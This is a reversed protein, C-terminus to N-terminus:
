PRAVITGLRDVYARHFAQEAELAVQELALRERQHVINPAESGELSKRTSQLYGLERQLLALERRAEELRVVLLEHSRQVNADIEYAARAIEDKRARAHREAHGGRTLGGLNFGLQVVGYWDVRPYTVVGGTMELQWPAGSRARNSARELEAAADAYAGALADVSAAPSGSAHAGKAVLERAQGRTQGLKRTLASARTRVDELELLTILHNAFRATARDVLGEVEREHAELFAIQAELAAQRADDDGAALMEELRARAEHERCDAEGASLVGLGKYLDTASFALGARTQFGQGIFTGTGELQGNEPFRLGQLIVRPAMLLAADDAAREHVKACYPSEDASALAPWLVALVLVAGTRKSENM